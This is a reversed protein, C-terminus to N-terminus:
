VTSHLRLNLHRMAIVMEPIDGPWGNQRLVDFADRSMTAQVSAVHLDGLEGEPCAISYHRGFRFHKMHGQAYLEVAYAIESEDAGASRESEAPDLLETFIVLGSPEDYRVVFDGAKLAAQKPHVHADAAERAKNIDEFMDDISSYTRINM